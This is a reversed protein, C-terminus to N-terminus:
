VSQEELLWQRAESEDSFVRAQIIARNALVNEIFKDMERAEPNLEVWALRYKYTFGAKKLIEPHDFAEMTKLPTSNSIGLINRCKYEECARALETFFQLSTQYDSEATVRVCLFNGEFTVGMEYGM